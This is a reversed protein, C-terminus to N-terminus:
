VNKEAKTFETTKTQKILWALYIVLGAACIIFIALLDWQPQVTLSEPKVFPSAMMSRLFHRNVVMLAVVLLATHATAKLQRPSGSSAALYGMITSIVSLAISAFFVWSIIGNGDSFQASIEKPLSFLFHFGVAVQITSIISYIIAGNKIWWTGTEPETQVKRAGMYALFLGAIAISGLFFHLFRPILQRDALHFNLGNASHNYYELWKEPHLMLLMNSSFTLGILAFLVFAIFLTLSILAANEKQEDQNFLKYIVFYCSYYAAILLVIIAIWPVAMVISSSYFLPGYLLQLFLLPVIGQTITFSVFIPLISALNKAAKYMPSNKESGSKLFMFSALLTGGLVVNMPLVHLYFGLVLLINLLWLPAPLPLPQYNPIINSLDM